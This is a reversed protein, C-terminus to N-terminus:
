KIIQNINLIECDKNEHILKLRKNIGHNNIDIFRNFTMIIDREFTIYRSGNWEIYSYTIIFKYQKGM